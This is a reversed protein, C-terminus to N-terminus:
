KKMKPKRRRSSAPEAEATNRRQSAVLRMTTIFDNARWEGKVSHKSRRLSCTSKSSIKEDAEPLQM